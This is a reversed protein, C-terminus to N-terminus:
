HISTARDVREARLAAPLRGHSAIAGPVQEVPVRGLWHVNPLRACRM